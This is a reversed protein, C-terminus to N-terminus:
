DGNELYDLCSLVDGIFINDLTTEGYFNVVPMGEDLLIDLQNLNHLLTYDDCILYDFEIVQNNNLLHYDDIMEVDHNIILCDKKNLSINKKTIIIIMKDVM